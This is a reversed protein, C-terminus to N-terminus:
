WSPLFGGEWLLRQGKLMHFCQGQEEQCIYLVGRRALLEASSCPLQVSTRSSTM